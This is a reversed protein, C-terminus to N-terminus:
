TSLRRVPWSLPSIGGGVRTGIIAAGIGIRRVITPRTIIHRGGAPRVIARRAGDPLSPHGCRSVLNLCNRPHLGLVRHATARRVPARLGSVRRDLARRGPAQRGPGAARCAQCRRRVIRDRERSARGLRRSVQGHRRSAQGHRRSARDHRRSARGHRLNARGHRRSAQGHRRSAQGHRHNRRRARHGHAQRLLDRNLLHRQDRRQRRYQRDRGRQVQDHQRSGVSDVVREPAARRHM